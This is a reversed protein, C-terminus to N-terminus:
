GATPTQLGAAPKVELVKHLLQGGMKVARLKALAAKEGTCCGDVTRCWLEVWRDYHRADTGYGYRADVHRHLQMPNGKFTPRFLLNCEWFDTM